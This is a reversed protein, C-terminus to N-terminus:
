TKLIVIIRIFAMIGMIFNHMKNYSKTFLLNGSAIGVSKWGNININVNLEIAIRDNKANSEYEDSAISQHTISVMFLFSLFHAILRYIEM